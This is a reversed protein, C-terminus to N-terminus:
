RHAGPGEYVHVQEPKITVVVRTQGPHEFPFRDLGMYKKALRDNLEAAGDTTVDIVRGRVTVYHYPNAADHVALAVRPDRRMNKTKVRGEATNILLCDDADREVWLPTVQPSGDPM